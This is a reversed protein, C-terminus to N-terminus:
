AGSQRAALIASVLEEPVEEGVPAEPATWANHGLASATKYTEIYHVCSDCVALHRDFEARRDLPLEGDLYLHLFEILERCTIYPRTSM